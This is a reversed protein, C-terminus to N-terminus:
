WVGAVVFSVGGPGVAVTPTTPTDGGGLVYLVAGAGLAV